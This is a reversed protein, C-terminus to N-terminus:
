LFVLRAGELQSSRSAGMPSAPAVQSAPADAAWESGAAASVAAAPGAAVAGGRTAAMPAVSETASMAAYQRRNRFAAYWGVLKDQNLRGGSDLGLETIAANLEEPSIAFGLQLCLKRFEM